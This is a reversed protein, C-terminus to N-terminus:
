QKDEWALGLTSCCLLTSAVSKPSSKLFFIYAGKIGWLGGRDSKASM